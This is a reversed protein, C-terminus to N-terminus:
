AAVAYAGPAVLVSGITGADGDEWAVGIVKQGTLTAAIAKGDADATLSNGRTVNGGYEVPAIGSVACDYRGGSAVALSGNIGLLADTAADAQVDVLETSGRTVIRYAAIDAGATRNVFTVGFSNM